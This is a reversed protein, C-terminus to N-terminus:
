GYAAIKRETEQQLFDIDEEALGKFRGQAQFYAAVPLWSQPVYTLRLNKEEDQELLPFIGTEVALRSIHLAESSDIKWGPPCASLLHLFRFGSLDRAREFKAMFDDPYAINATALYAPAHAKVIAIVDKKEYQLEKGAPTTTTWAGQPTASSRQIGTNMYAENDYCVYIFDEHREAAGSLAQLGIDFTGGDGAWVMVSVGKKGQALLSRRVGSACAAATAFPVHLLPVSFASSPFAGAIISMCCAPLVVITQGGLVKLAHRLSLSAGCGPCAMHGSTLYETTTVNWLM